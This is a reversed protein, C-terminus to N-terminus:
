RRGRFGGRGYRRRPSYNNMPAKPEDEPIDEALPAEGDELKKVSTSKGINLQVRGRFSSTWAGDIEVVDGEHLTGAKSGWLTVQVRGTEDGLVANSITRMGRKTNIIKPPSTELVRGKVSINELNPKLDIIHIRPKSENM